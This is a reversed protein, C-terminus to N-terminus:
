GIYKNTRLGYVTPGYLTRVWACRWVGSVGSARPDRGVREAAAPEPSVVQEHVQEPEERRTVEGRDPGRGRAGGGRQPERGGGFVSPLQVGGQGLVM